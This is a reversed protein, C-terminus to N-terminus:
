VGALQGIAAITHQSDVEGFAATVVFGAIIAVVAIRIGAQVLTHGSPTSITQNSVIYAKALRAIFGAIVTVFNVAIRTSVIASLRDTAISKQTRALATVIAVLVGRVGTMIALRGSTTIRHNLIPLSTIIAIRDIAVGTEAVARRSLATVAHEELPNFGAIIAVTIL